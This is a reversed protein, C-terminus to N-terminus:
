LLIIDVILPEVDIMKKKIINQFGTKLKVRALNQSQFLSIFIM